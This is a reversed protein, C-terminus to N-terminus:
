REPTTERAFLNKKLAAKNIIGLQGLQVTNETLEALMVAYRLSRDGDRPDKTVRSLNLCYGSRHIRTMEIIDTFRYLDIEGM